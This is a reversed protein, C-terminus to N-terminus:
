IVNKQLHYYPPRNKYRRIAMRIIEELFDGYNMGIFEAAASVCDGIDISPNPNLELVYPNNNKDVRIEVRGYDHCDLINYTDLAIETLLSELKKSINKAPRQVIIGVGSKYAPNDTWKADFPYIHWYGAPMKDFISRSLPLVRLDDEESGLISVDYEDGEIYEEVLAPQYLTETIEKIQRELEKQNTVVSNNTIGISNDSNAPKVILPYKLSEDIKDELSYAYDWKPTPINHYSLLKKVRIKDICLGLTFPNSGTYPIQLTDLISAVHPELLSSNNIRECVNFVMDVNSKRLDNFAKPLNNFDFFTIKYGREKLTEEIHRGISTLDSEVALQDDQYINCAIGIHLNRQEEALSRKIKEIKAMGNLLDKNMSALSFRNRRSTKGISSAPDFKVVEYKIYKLINKLNDEADLPNNGSVSVWGLYEYGEPPVMVTDGIKKFIHFEELHENKKIAEDIDLKVLIGSYEPIFDYSILYKKPIEPSEIKKIYTGFAVKIMNEILDFNWAERTFSYTEDGGMRLNAEIPVPGDKTMKAEFHICGNQVGLKELTMEAIEM